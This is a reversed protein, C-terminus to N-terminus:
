TTPPSATRRTRSRADDRGHRRARPRPRADAHFAKLVGPEIGEGSLEEPVGLRIGKLDTARRCRSRSPCASRRATARTRASWRAAAAARRRHRRPHVPGGPRALLRLRDDRLPSIAGYTPKLGVIGCLAAPQRISGGTDTGISWPATGAAVAAASGGSRAAPSAARTGRTSRRATPPTRPPPAWRSSTRTPRASCRRAPRRSSARGLDGHVAAPLGRPDELRGPEPHGRHLVPGQDRRPRRGAAPRADVGAAREAVWTYSNFADAARASATSTSTSAPTSRRRARIQARGGPGRDARADLRSGPVPRPLRGAGADPASELATEVPLSPRPEDARLANEVNIVHSTPPVDALDGLQTSRRSTTSCRRSSAPSASSRRRPSSSAPSSPSTCSRTAVSCRRM